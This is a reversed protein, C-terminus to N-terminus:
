SAKDLRLQAVGVAINFGEETEVSVPQLSISGGEGGVLVNAGLGVDMSADAAVGRYTGAIEAQGFGSGAYVLWVLRSKKITGIDLGFETVKGVFESSPGPASPKFVCKIEQQSGIIVGLGQSLDCDLQGIKVSAAYGSNAAQLVFIAVATALTTVKRM